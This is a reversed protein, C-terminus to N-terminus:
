SKKECSRCMGSKAFQVPTTIVNCVKCFVEKLQFM